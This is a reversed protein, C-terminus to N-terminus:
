VQISKKCADSELFFFFFSHASYAFTPFPHWLAKLSWMGTNTKMKQFTFVVKSSYFIWSLSSNQWKLLLAQTPVQLCMSAHLTMRFQTETLELLWTEVLRCHFITSFEWGWGASFRCPQKRNSLHSTNLDTEGPLLPAKPSHEVVWVAAVPCHM